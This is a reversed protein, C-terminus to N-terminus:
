HRQLKHFLRKRYVEWHVPINLKFAASSILMKIDADNLYKKSRAVFAKSLAEIKDSGIARFVKDKYEPDLNAARRPRYSNILQIPM